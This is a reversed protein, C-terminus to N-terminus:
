KAKRVNATIEEMRFTPDGVMTGSRNFVRVNPVSVIDFQRCVPTGWNVIDVKRLAIDSDGKALKDLEPSLARCPGCWEAFFDLITVKGTVVLEQLVIRDGGKYIAKIDPVAVAPAAAPFTAVQTPPATTAAPTAAAPARVVAHIQVDSVTTGNASFLFFNEYFMVTTKSTKMTGKSKGILHDMEAIPMGILLRPNERFEDPTPIHPTNTAAVPANIPAGPLDFRRLVEGSTAPATAARTIMEAVATGGRLGVSVFCSTMLVFAILQIWFPARAIGWNKIVFVLQAFPILLVALGWGISKRFAVVLLFIGGFVWTLLSLFIVIGLAILM